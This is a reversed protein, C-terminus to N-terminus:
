FKEFKQELAGFGDTFQLIYIGQPLSSVDTLFTNVGIASNIANKLLVRGTIDIISIAVNSTNNENITYYIVSSTPNPYLSGARSLGGDFDVSVIDSYTFSSDDDVAKLRYYRIGSKNPQMDLFSYNLTTNSNGHAKVSGLTYFELDSTSTSVEIDFHDTNEETATQWTCLSNANERVANFSVLTIPM